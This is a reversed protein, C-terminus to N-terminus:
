DASRLLYARIPDFGRRFPGLGATKVPKPFGLVLLHREPPRISPIAAAGGADLGLSAAGALRGAAGPASQIKRGFRWKASSFKIGLRALFRGALGM